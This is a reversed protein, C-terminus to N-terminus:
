VFVYVASMCATELLAGSHTSASRAAPAFGDVDTSALWVPSLTVEKEGMDSALSDLSRAMM